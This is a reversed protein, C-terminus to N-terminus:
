TKGALEGRCRAASIEAMSLTHGCGPCEASQNNSLDGGCRTCTAPSDKFVLAAAPHPCGKERFRAEAFAVARGEPDASKPLVIFRFPFVVYTSHEARHIDFAAEWPFSQFGSWDEREVGDATLRVRVPGMALGATRHMDKKASERIQEMLRKPKTFTLFLYGGMAVSLALAVAIAVIGPKILLHLVLCQMGFLAFSLIPWLILSKRRTSQHADSVVSMGYDVLEESVSEIDLQYLLEIPQNAHPTETGDSM